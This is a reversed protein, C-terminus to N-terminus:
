RSDREARVASTADESPPRDEFLRELTVAARRAQIAAGPGREIGLEKAALRALYGSRTLGASRAARDIRALLRDDVSVLIKRVRL